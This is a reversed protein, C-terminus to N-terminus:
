WIRKKSPVESVKIETFRFSYSESLKNSEIDNRIIKTLRGIAEEPSDAFVYNWGSRFRVKDLEEKTFFNLIGPLATSSDYQYRYKVDVIYKM